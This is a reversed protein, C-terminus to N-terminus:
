RAAKRGARKQAALKKARAAVRKNKRITDWAKFAAIQQTSLKPSNKKAM